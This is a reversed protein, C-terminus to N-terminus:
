QPKPTLFVRNRWLVRGSPFLLQYRRQGLSSLIRAPTTWHKTDTDQVLVEDGVKFRPLQKAKRDYYTRTRSNIKVKAEDAKQFRDQWKQDYQKWNIPMGSRIPKGFLRVAPSLGDAKPSNRLELLGQQVEDSDFNGENKLLLYKLQKVHAEAHGNSQPNEPSSPTWDVKWLKLFDQTEKSKFQPGQDSRLTEPAGFLSFLKRFTTITQRATPEKVKFQCVIPYGSYRDAYALYKHKGAQFFDATAVEWPRVPQYDQILPEPAHSPRFEACRDCGKVSEEIDRSFGIWYVTERARRKSKEIGQHSKHLEELVYPICNHPIVIQQNKYILGGDHSLTHAFAKFKKTYPHNKTTVTGDKIAQLLIQYNQDEAAKQVLHRTVMDGDRRSTLANVRVPDTEPDYEHPDIPSRSLADPASHDAGKKWQLLFHYRTLKSRYNQVRVNEIANLPQSNFMPILPRHDTIVDFYPLGALFIHCKKIAWFIALAELECMAYRTECDALFRSGAQIWKKTGNHDQSLIFGLGHRSADTELSTPAKPDFMGLSHPDCLLAKVKNFAVTHDALWMFANKTKLLGRLPEATPALLPNHNALQNSLSIFSRLDTRDKPIKFDRIARIKTDCPTISDASINFGVFQISSAGALTSKKANITLGYKLCRDLVQLQKEMLSRYTSSGFGIDDIVKAVSLGALAADGRLSYSDGTSKFGMPARLYTFKGFIPCISTTLPQSEEALRMQWYGCKLDLASFYNDAKDFTQVAQAPTMSPHTTRKVQSNLRTLDATIRVDGNNKLVVRCPHCWDTPKDPCRQIIGISEM